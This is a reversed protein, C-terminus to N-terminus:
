PVSDCLGRAPTCLREVPVDGPGRPVADVIQCDLVMAITDRARGGQLRPALARDYYGKGWGLRGGHVDLACAPVVVVAAAALPVLPFSAPPTPIGFRDRRLARAALEPPVAHFALTDGQISPLLRLRGVARVADDLPDTDIEFPRAAYLAVPGPGASALWAAIPAATAAGASALEEPSLGRLAVRLERRLSRKREALDQAEASASM